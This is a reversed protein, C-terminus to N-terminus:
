QNDQEIEEDTREACCEDAEPELSVKEIEQLAEKFYQLCNNLIEDTEDDWTSVESKWIWWSIGWGLYHRFVWFKSPLVDTFCWFKEDSKETSLYRPSISLQTARWLEWEINKADFYLWEIKCKEELDEIIYSLEDM